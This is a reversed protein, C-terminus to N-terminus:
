KLHCVCHWLGKLSTHIIVQMSLGHICCHAVQEVMEPELHHTLTALCRKLALFYEPVHARHSSGAIFITRLERPLKLGLIQSRPDTLIGASNLSPM